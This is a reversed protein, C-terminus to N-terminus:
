EWRGKLSKLSFRDGMKFDQFHDFTKQWVSQSSDPSELQRQMSAMVWTRLCIQSDFPFRSFIEM